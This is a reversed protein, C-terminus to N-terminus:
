TVPLGTGEIIWGPVWVLGIHDIFINKKLLRVFVPEIDMKEFDYKSKVNGLESKFEANLADLESSLVSLEEEARRVDAKEKVSRGARRMATGARSITSRSIKKRGLFAGLLTTGVSLVTDMQVQRAQVSERDVRDEARRIKTDLSDIKKEYRARLGAMAEDRLERAKERMRIRFEGESEEPSSVTKLLPARMLELQENRYIYEKLRNSWFTYKAAKRAAAPLEQFRANRRPKKELDKLSLEARMSEEWDAGTLSDAAPTMVNVPLTLDIGYKTSSFHISGSGMIHPRYILRSGEPGPQQVPYYYEAIGPEIVPKSFAPIDPKGAVTKLPIREKRKASLSQIQTHTMPGALYSMAWRTHFIVPRTEHVNHMLFVRKGLGALIKELDQKSGAANGTVSAGILGDLVRERDRRTQLRGIFWTGTNSLGKYDLDVPNQTALTVGLGSARAQKLLTLLAQKSPPNATPPVYGFIEDFYLMARLSSTGPQTRVWGLVQNLLLSIFFMREADTLHAVYFISIRPKGSGTYLMKQIDLPDGELWAQFGPVALLNNLRMVLEFREKAPYFTDLDLVGIQDMPPSQVAKILAAIDPDVGKLWFHELINSLLIHERSRIPDADIGLLNLLSTVTIVLKQRFGDIDDIVAQPPAKFSDLISVPFGATSGPTYITYDASNQFRRIREGDQGWSALGDKWLGATKAALEDLTIGRRKAEGEQVWPKFAEPSLSPFQLLLNTMDGKPDIIIAPIGDIAAEELLCVCLGTKGSGTMGICVSHTTLDRSDYLIMDETLESNELDFRKGLYFAGMKEYDAMLESRQM